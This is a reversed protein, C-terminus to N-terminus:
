GPEGVRIARRLHEHLLFSDIGREREVPIELDKSEAPNRSVVGASTKSPEARPGDVFRKFRREAISRAPSEPRVGESRGLVVDRVRNGDMLAGDEDAAPGRAREWSMRVRAEAVREKSPVVRDPPLNPGALKARDTGIGHESDERIRRAQVYGTGLPDRPGALLGARVREHGPEVQVPVEQPLIHEAGANRIRGDVQGCVGRAHVGDAAVPRADDPAGRGEDALVREVPRDQPGKSESGRVADRGGRADGRLCAGDVGDSGYPPGQVSLRTRSPEVREETPVVPVAHPGQVRWNPEDPLM